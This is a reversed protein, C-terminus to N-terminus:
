MKDSREPNLIKNHQKIIHELQEEMFILKSYDEKSRVKQKLLMVLMYNTLGISEILIDLRIDINDM